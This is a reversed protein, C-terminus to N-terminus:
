VCWSIDLTAFLREWALHVHVSDDVDSPIRTGAFPGDGIVRENIITGAMASVRLAPGFLGTLGTLAYVGMDM